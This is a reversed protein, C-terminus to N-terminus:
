EMNERNGAFGKDALAPPNRSHTLQLREELTRERGSGQSQSEQHCLAREWSPPMWQLTLQNQTDWSDDNFSLDQKGGPM